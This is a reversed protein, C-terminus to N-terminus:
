YALIEMSLFIPHIAMTDATAPTSVTITIPIVATADFATTNHGAQNDSKNLLTAGAAAPAIAWYDMVHRQASASEAVIYWEFEVLGANGATVSRTASFVTTTDAKWRMTTTVAGGTGNAIRFAGKIRVKKYATEITNAPIGMSDFLTIETGSTGLVSGRVGNDWLHYSFPGIYNEDNSVHYTAEGKLSIENSALQVYSDGAMAYVEIDDLTVATGGYISIDTTSDLTTIVFKQWEDNAKLSSLGQIRSNAYVTVTNDTGTSSAKGYGMVVFRSATLGTLQINRSGAGGLVFKVAYLGTHADTTIEVDTGTDNETWGTFDGTEFTGNTALNTNGGQQLYKFQGLKLIGLYPYSVANDSELFLGDRNSKITIGDEDLVVGGGGATLSGTDVDVYFTPRGSNDFGILYASVGYEDFLDTGSMILRPVGNEDVAYFRGNVMYGLASALESIDEVRASPQVGTARQVAKIADVVNKKNMKRNIPQETFESM